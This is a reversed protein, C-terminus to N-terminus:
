EKNCSYQLSAHANRTAPTSCHPMPMGQQLLVATLCPCEKNCSYQLSAHANRTAPTSCHPMPMGQQLLVATLCPCEKNCSYQLSAHANRTAPTSCRPPGAATSIAGACRELPPHLESKTSDELHEFAMFFKVICTKRISEM